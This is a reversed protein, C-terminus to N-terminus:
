FYRRVSDPLGELETGSFSGPAPLEALRTRLERASAM